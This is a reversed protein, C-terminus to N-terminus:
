VFSNVIPTTVPPSEVPNVQVSNTAIAKERIYRIANNGRLIRINNEIVVRYCSYTHSIDALCENVYEVIRDVENLTTIDIEGHLDRKKNDKLENLENYFRTLIETVTNVLLTYVEALEQNRHHKKEDRQLLTRMEEESIEKMLYKVRLEENRREYNPQTPREVHILHLSYRVIDDIRKM